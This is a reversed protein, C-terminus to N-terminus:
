DRLESGRGVRRIAMVKNKASRSRYFTARKISTLLRKANRASKLLHFTEIWSILEDASVLAVTEKGYRHVHIICRDRVEKNCLDGFRVRVRSITISIAM